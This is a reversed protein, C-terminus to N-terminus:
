KVVAKWLGAVSIVTWVSELVVFPFFSILWSAYCSLAAGAINIMLYIKDSAKLNNKLNLYYALLLLSVGITGILTSHSM